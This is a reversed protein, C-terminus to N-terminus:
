ADQSTRHHREQLVTISGVTSFPRTDRSVFFHLARGWMQARAEGGGREARKFLEYGM